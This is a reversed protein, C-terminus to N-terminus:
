AGEEEAKEALKQIEGGATKIKEEAKKSFYKAKIKLKADIAGSGLVKDFGLKDLDVVYFDGEREAKGEAVYRELREGLLDLNIGLIKERVGHIKFGKRGLFINRAYYSPMKQCARKGRGANGKGGRHGAGRHKKKSGWGHTHSGRM